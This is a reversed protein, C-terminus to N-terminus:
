YLSSLEIESSGGIIMIQLEKRKHMILKEVETGRLDFDGLLFNFSCYDFSEFKIIYFINDCSLIISTYINFECGLNQLVLVFSIFIEKKKQLFVSKAIM